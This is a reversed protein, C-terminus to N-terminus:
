RPPYIRKRQGKTQAVIFGIRMTRSANDMVRSRARYIEDSAIPPYYYGAHRDNGNAPAVVIFALLLPLVSLLVRFLM